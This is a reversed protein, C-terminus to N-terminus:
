ESDLVCMRTIADVELECPIVRRYNLATFFIQTLSGGKSAVQVLIRLYFHRIPIGGPTGACAGFGTRNKSLLNYIEHFVRLVPFM